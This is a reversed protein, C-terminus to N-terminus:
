DIIDEREQRKTDTGNTKGNNNGGDGVTTYVKRQIGEIIREISDRVAETHNHECDISMAAVLPGTLERDCAEIVDQAFREFTQADVHSEACITKYDTEERATALNVLKVAAVASVRSQEVLKEVGFQRLKAWDTLELSVPPYESHGNGNPTPTPTNRSLRWVTQRSVGLRAAVAGPKMGSSLLRNIETRREEVKTPM